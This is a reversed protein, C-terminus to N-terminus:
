QGSFVLVDNSVYTVYKTKKKQSFFNYDDALIGLSDFFALSCLMECVCVGFTLIVLLEFFLM